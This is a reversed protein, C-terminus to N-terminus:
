TLQHASELMELFLKHMTIRGENKIMFWYQKALGDLQRLQPLLLLLNSSRPAGEVLQHLAQVINDRLADRAATSELVCGGNLLIICKILVYEERTIRYDSLADVLRCAKAHVLEFGAENAMVEDVQFDQSFLLSRPAAELSRFCLSFLVIESWTSQLLHMQDNLPLDPFGPIQKAWGIIGVLDRDALDCLVSQLRLPTDLRETINALIAEPECANLAILLQSLEQTSPKRSSSLSSQSYPSAQVLISDGNNARRYKQRGGRVRDLRVGEKLMGVRLCKKYRCAQCAKRSKKSIPCDGVAPCAYEINGQITRKFFAKCAECSSVGYHYGSAADECVLCRRKRGMEDTGDELHSAQDSGEEIDEEAPFGDLGDLDAESATRRQLTNWRTNPRQGTPFSTTGKTVNDGEEKILRSASLTEDFSNFSVPLSDSSLSLPLVAHASPHAREAWRSKLEQCLESSTKHLAITPFGESTSEDAPRCIRHDFSDLAVSSSLASPSGTLSHPHSDDPSPSNSSTGTYCITSPRQPSQSRRYKYM